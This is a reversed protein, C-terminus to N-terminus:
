DKKEDHYRQFHRKMELGAREYGCKKYFGENAESCDLITKYCGVRDALLSLVEIITQGLKKGQQDKAVAIDEIHGVSGMNHIFKKEVIVGGTGVIRTKGEGDKAEVVILYYGGMSRMEEFRAAFEDETIPGVSTLVRLVDLYGKEHDTAQLPRISYDLPISLTSLILSLLSSPFLPESSM